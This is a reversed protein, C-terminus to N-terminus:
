AQMAQQKLALDLARRYVDDCMPGLGHRAVTSIEVTPLATRLAQMAVSDTCLRTNGLLNIHSLHQCSAGIRVLSGVSTADYDNWPLTLETLAPLAGKECAGALADLSRVTPFCHDLVMHTVKPMAGTAWADLLPELVGDCAQMGAHRLHVRTVHSLVGARTLASALTELDDRCLTEGWAWQFSKRRERAVRIMESIADHHASGQAPRESMEPAVARGRTRAPQPAEVRPLWMINAGGMLAKGLGFPPKSLTVVRAHRPEAARYTRQDLQALTLLEAVSAAKAAHRLVEEPLWAWMACGHPLLPVVADEDDASAWEGGSWDGESM